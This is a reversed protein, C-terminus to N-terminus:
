ITHWRRHMSQCHIHMCQRSALWCSENSCPRVREFNSGDQLVYAAMADVLFRVCCHLHLSNVQM